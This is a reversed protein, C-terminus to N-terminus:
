ENQASPKEPALGSIEPDGPDDLESAKVQFEFGDPVDYREQADEPLQARLEDLHERPDGQLHRDAFGFVGRDKIHDYRLLLTPDSDEQDGIKEFVTAGHPGVNEFKQTRVPQKDPNYANSVLERGESTGGLAIAGLLAGALMIKESKKNYRNHNKPM